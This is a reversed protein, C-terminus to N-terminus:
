KDWDYHAILRHGDPSVFCTACSMTCAMEMIQPDSLYEPERIEPVAEFKPAEVKIEAVVAAPASLLAGLFGRRKM